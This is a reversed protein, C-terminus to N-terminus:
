KGDKKDEDTKISRILSLLQAGTVERFGYGGVLAYLFIIDSKEGLSSAAFYVCLGVFSGGMVYGPMGSQRMSKIPYTLKRAVAGFSATFVYPLARLLPMAINNFLYLGVDDTTVLM